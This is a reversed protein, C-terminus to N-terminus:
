KKAKARAAARVDEMTGDYFGSSCAEDTLRQMAAIKDMRQQDHSRPM